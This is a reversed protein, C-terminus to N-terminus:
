AARFSSETLVTVFLYYWRELDVLRALQSLIESTPEFHYAYGDALPTVNLWWPRASRAPNLACTCGYADAPSLPARDAGIGAGM